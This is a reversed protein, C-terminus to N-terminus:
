ATPSPAPRYGNITLHTEVAIRLPLRKSPEVMPVFVIAFPNFSRGNSAQIVADNDEREELRYSKLGPLQDLIAHHASWYARDVDDASAGRAKAEAKAKDAAALGIPMLKRRAAWQALLEDPDCRAVQHKHSTKLWRGGSAKRLVEGVYAVLPMVLDAVPREAWPIRKLAKDVAALSAVSGDLAEGAVKIRAGLSKAHAEVDRLFDDIPPLLTQPGVRPSVGAAQKAAERETEACMRNMEEAAARSPYLTGSEGLSDRLLVRGDPLVRAPGHDSFQSLVEDDAIWPLKSLERAEKASVNRVGPIRRAVM